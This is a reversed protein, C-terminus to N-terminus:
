VHTTAAAPSPPSPPPPSPRPRLHFFYILAALALMAATLLLGVRLPSYPAKGAVRGTQGNILIQFVRGSGRYRYAAIWMPLLVHKFRVDQFQHTARLRRQTDGPVDSACRRGQTASLSKRAREWGDKLEVGYREASFGLLYEPAYPVLAELEFGHVPAQPSAASSHQLGLSACVLHGDHQDHRMGSCPEWRTRAVCRRSGDRAKEEVFYTYGADASWRSTVECSFAWYPVYVGHLKEVAAAAPLDAPSLWRKGLWRRFAQEAARRDVAFPVLSEPLYHDEAASSEVIVSSGCFECRTAQVEDPLEVEARCEGCRIQRTGTGIRGRAKRESLACTLDHDIISGGSGSAEAEGDTRSRVVPELAGCQECRLQATAADFALRGSCKDCTRGASADAPM